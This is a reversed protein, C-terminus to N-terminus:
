VDGRLDLFALIQAQECVPHSIRIKRPNAYTRLCFTKEMGVLFIAASRLNQRRRIWIIYAYLM